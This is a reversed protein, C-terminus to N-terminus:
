PLLRRLKELRTSRSDAHTLAGVYEGERDLLFVSATHDMVYDSGAPVKRFSAGYARAVEAIVDVAGTLAIIRPDFSAMYKLLKAPTDREPDVSVFVVKIRDAESGLEELDQTMQLLTTPCVDPCHTFGFFIALPMRNLDRDTFVTGHQTTLRFAVRPDALAQGSIALAFGVVLALGGLAAAAGRLCDWASLV